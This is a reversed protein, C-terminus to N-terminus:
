KLSFPNFSTYSDFYDTQEQQKLTNIIHKTVPYLVIEILLKFIYNSLAVILLTPTSLIGAFAILVFLSTDIAEGAITSAILRIFLYKGKTKVKLRALIYSNTFEGILYSVISALFIRPALLLINAYDQQFLREPSSPMIGVIYIMASMLIM